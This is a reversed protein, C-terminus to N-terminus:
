DFIGFELCFAFHVFELDFGGQEEDFQLAVVSHFFEACIEGPVREVSGFAVDVTTVQLQLIQEVFHHVQFFFDDLAELELVTIRAFNNM